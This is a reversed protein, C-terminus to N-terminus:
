NEKGKYADLEDALMRQTQFVWDKMNSQVIYQLDELIGAINTANVM